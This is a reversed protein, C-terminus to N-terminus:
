RRAVEGGDSMRHSAAANVFINIPRACRHWTIQIRVLMEGAVGAAVLNPLTAPQMGRQM